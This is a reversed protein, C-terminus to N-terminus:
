FHFFSFISQYLKNQTIYQTILTTIVGVVFGIIIELTINKYNWKNRYKKVEIEKHPDISKILEWGTDIAEKYLNLPINIDKGIAEMEKKRAIKAKEKFDNRKQSFLGASMSLSLRKTDDEWIEDIESDIKVWLLKYSDLTARLIHSYAKELNKNRLDRDQNEDIYVM